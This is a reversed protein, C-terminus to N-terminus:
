SRGKPRAVAGTAAFLSPGKGDPDGRLATVRCGPMGAGAFLEEIRERTFGLHEHGMTRRYEERTHEFMDVMLVRGGPKVIRAIERLAADPDPVHHMVLMVVGVDVSADALPISEISGERFEVNEFEGLRRRAAGLMPESFDVAIVRAVHPAILESANGTGCGIDAVVWSPDLLAHLSLSTVSEGFLESRVSDWEGAVRGFFSRSDMRRQALVAELRREDERMDPDDGSGERVAVWLPRAVAPLDDLTLRYLTATGEARRQVWGASALVKLHRSITSQPLQLVRAVEGVTLENGELLRVLRLRTHDGIAALRTTIPIDLHPDLMKM